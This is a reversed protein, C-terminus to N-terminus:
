WVRILEDKLGLSYKYWIQPLTYHVGSDLIMMKIGISVIVNRM